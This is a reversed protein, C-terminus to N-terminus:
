EPKQDQLLKRDRAAQVDLALELLATVQMNRSRKLVKAQADVQTALSQPIRISFTVWGNEVSM